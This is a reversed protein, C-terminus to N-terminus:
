HCVAQAQGGVLIRQRAPKLAVVLMGCCRHCTHLCRAAARVQLERKKIRSVDSEYAERQAALDPFEERRTKNIRNLIDNKKREVVCRKVAKQKHFSVQGVVMDATKKLNGWMTYVIPVNNDKCGQISNQKVLQCCEELLDEPIDDIAKGRPLRLYVHASSLNDM